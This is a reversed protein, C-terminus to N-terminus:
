EQLLKLIEQEIKEKQKEPELVSKEYEQVRKGTNKLVQAHSDNFQGFPTYRTAVGQLKEKAANVSVKRAISLMESMQRAVEPDYKTNGSNFYASAKDLGLQISNPLVRADVDKDTLVGKEGSVARAFIAKINNLKSFDRSKLANEITDFGSKQTTLTEDVKSVDNRFQSDFSNSSGGKKDGVSTEVKQAIKGQLQNKLFDQEAKSIGMQNESIMNQLGAILKVYDTQSPPPAYGSAVDKGTLSSVFQNLPALNTQPEPAYSGILEQLKAQQERLAKLSDDEQARLQLNAYDSPSLMVPTEAVSTTVKAQKAQPQAAMLEMVMLDYPDIAGQPAVVDGTQALIADTNRSMRVGSEM